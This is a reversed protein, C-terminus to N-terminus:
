VKVTFVTRDTYRFPGSIERVTFFGPACQDLTISEGVTPLNFDEGDRYTVLHGSINGIRYNVITKM